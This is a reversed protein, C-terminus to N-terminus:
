PLDRQEMRPRPHINVSRMGEPGITFGHVAGAPVVIVTGSAAEVDRGDVTFTAGGELVIFTEDYPHTHPGPGTGERGDVIFFSVSSGHREGLFRRSRGSSTKGIEDFPVVQLEAV